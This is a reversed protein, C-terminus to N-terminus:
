FTFSVRIEPNSYLDYVSDDLAWLVILNIASRRGIPQSIGAGALLTNVTFRESILPPNQWFESELSLFEDEAHLFIGMNIGVPVISNIDRILVIQTYGRGGYISTRGNIPDKYFRYNPGAAVALRPLVWFGIIPSVEIDTITGFQLGFSGGYFLREKIPPAESRSRQSSTVPAALILLSTTLVATFKLRRLDLKHRISVM